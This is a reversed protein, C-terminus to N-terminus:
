SNKKTNTESHGVIYLDSYGNSLSLILIIILGVKVVWFSGNTYNDSSSKTGALIINLELLNRPILCKKYNEINNKLKKKM